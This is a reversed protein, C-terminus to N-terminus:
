KGKAVFILLDLGLARALEVVKNDVVVFLHGLVHGLAPSRATLGHAIPGIARSEEARLLALVLIVFRPKGLLLIQHAHQNICRRLLRHLLRNVPGEIPFTALVAVHGVAARADREVLGAVLHLAVVELVRGLLVAVVAADESLLGM